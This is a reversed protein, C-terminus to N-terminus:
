KLYEILEECREMTMDACFLNRDVAALSGDSAAIEMAKKEKEAIWERQEELVIDFSDEDVNYRVLNWIENLCDDSIEYMSATCEVMDVTTVAESLKDNYYEYSEQYLNLTMRADELPKLRDFSYIGYRNAEDVIATIELEDEIDGFTRLWIIVEESLEDVPTGPLYIKFTDNGGLCYADTYIYRVNDIIEEEGAVEEYTIDTLKMEYTYENIKQIDTFHGSYNSSYVTGNEYGDGVSGMDSDHYLGKFYGDKEITFEESWGGAGSSFCFQLKSLDEFTLEAASDPTEETVEVTDEGEVAEEKEQFDTGEEAEEAETELFTEPETQLEWSGERSDIPIEEVSVSSYEEYEEAGCGGVAIALAIGLISILIRNKM